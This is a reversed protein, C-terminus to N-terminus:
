PQPLFRRFAQYVRATIPGTKGDAVPARDITTVPVVQSTTSTLFIEQATALDTRHVPEERCDLGDDRAAAIVADRTVGALLRPTKPPTRLVGNTILFINGATSEALAGDAGVFLADDAGHRRALEFALVNPLLAVSKIDCRAWRLDAVTELAVGTEALTAPAPELERVTIVITPTLGPPM